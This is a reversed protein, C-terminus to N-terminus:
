IDNYIEILMELAENPLNRIVYFTAYGMGDPARNSESNKIAFNLYKIAYESDLFHGQYLSQIGTRVDPWRGMVM